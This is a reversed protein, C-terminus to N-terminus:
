LFAFVRRLVVFTLSHSSLAVLIYFTISTTCLVFRGDFMMHESPKQKYPKNPRGVAAVNLMSPTNNADRAGVCANPTSKNNLVRERVRWDSVMVIMMM